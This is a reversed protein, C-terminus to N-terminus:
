KIIGAKIDKKIAFPSAFSTGNIYFIANEVKNGNTDFCIKGDKDAKLTNLPNFHIFNDTIDPIVYDGFDKYDAPNLMFLDQAAKLSFIKDECQKLGEPRTKLDALLPKVRYIFAPDVGCESYQKGIYRKLRCDGNSAEDKLVDVKKDEDIDYGIMNGNEYIEAVSFLAQEQRNFTDTYLETLRDGGVVQPDKFFFPQLDMEDQVNGAAFYAPLKVDPLEILDKIHEYIEALKLQFAILSQHFMYKPDTKRAEIVDKNKYCYEVLTAIKDKDSDGPTEKMKPLLFSRYQDKTIETGVSVNIASIKAGNKVANFVNKIAAGITTVDTHDINIPLINADKATYLSVTEGHSLDKINDGNIDVYKREFADIVAVVPKDNTGISEFSDKLAKTTFFSKDVSDVLKQLEPDITKKGGSAFPVSCNTNNIM